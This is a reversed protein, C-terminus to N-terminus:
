KKSLTFAPVRWLCSKTTLKEMAWVQIQLCYFDFVTDAPAVGGVKELGLGVSANAEDRAQPLPSLSPQLGIECARELLVRHFCYIM